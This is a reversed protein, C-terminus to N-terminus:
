FGSVCFLTPTVNITGVYQPGPTRYLHGSLRIYVPDVFIGLIFHLNPYRLTVWCVERRNAVEPNHQTYAAGGHQQMALAPKSQNFMMDYFAPVNAKNREYAPNNSPINLLM